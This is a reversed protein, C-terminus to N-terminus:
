VFNIVGEGSPKFVILTVKRKISWELLKKIGFVDNNYRNKEKNPLHNCDLYHKSIDIGLCSITQIKNNIM